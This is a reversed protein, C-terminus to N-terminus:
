SVKKEEETIRKLMQDLKAGKVLNELMRIRSEVMREKAYNNVELAENESELTRLADLQEASLKTFPHVKAAMDKKLIDLKEQEIELEKRRTLNKSRHHAWALAFVIVLLAILIILFMAWEFSLSFDM